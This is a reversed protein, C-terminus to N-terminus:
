SRTLCRAKGEAKAIARDVRALLQSTPRGCGDDYDCWNKVAHHGRIEKLAALLDDCQMEYTRADGCVEIFKQEYHDGRILLFEEDATRERERIGQLAAEM